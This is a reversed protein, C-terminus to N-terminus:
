ATKSALQTELTTVRATLEKVSEILLATLKPYDLGLYPPEEPLPTVEPDVPTAIHFNQVIEPVISAVDQAILGIQPRKEPDDILNFAVGQLALVKALSGTLPAVNEKLRADSPGNVIANAFTVVRTSRLITWVSGLNSGADNNAALTMNSGANSGSEPTADGLTWVWRVSGNSQVLLQRATAPAGNSVFAGNAWLMSATIPNPTSITGNSRNITLAADILAGADSFRNIVFNTGANAGSEAVSDGLQVSWRNSAGTLGVIARYNGAPATLQLQSNPNGGLTIVGNSRSISIPTGLQTTGDDAINNIQFNSGANAGSEASGDGLQIMWRGKGTVYSAITHGIGATASTLALTGNIGVLGGLSTTGNVGLTGTVSLNGPGALTGGTLPLHGFATTDLAGLVIWATNAINRIKLQGNTSDAWMQCPYTILPQTAGQFNSGLAQLAAQIDTRVDVGAGNAITLDHNSM